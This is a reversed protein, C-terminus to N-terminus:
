GDRALWGALRGAGSVMGMLRNSQHLVWGTDGTEERYAIWRPDAYMRARRAERDAASEYLWLHVFQNLEGEKTAFYALPEGLYQRMLPLAAERHRALYRDLCGPRITYTREDILM